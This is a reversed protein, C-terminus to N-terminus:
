KLGVIFIITMQDGKRGDNKLFFGSELMKNPLHGIHVPLHGIHM